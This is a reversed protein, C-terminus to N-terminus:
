LILNSKDYFFFLFKISKCLTSFKMPAARTPGDDAKLIVWVVQVNVIVSRWVKKHDMLADLMEAQGPLPNNWRNREVFNEILKADFGFEKYDRLPM